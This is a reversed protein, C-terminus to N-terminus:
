IACMLEESGNCEMDNDGSNSIKISRLYSPQGVNSHARKVATKADAFTCEDLDPLSMNLWFMFLLANVVAEACTLSLLCWFITCRCVCLLLKM